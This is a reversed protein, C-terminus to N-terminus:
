VCFVVLQSEMLFCSCSVPFSSHFKISIGDIYPFSIVRRTYDQHDLRREETRRRKLVQFCLRSSAPSHTGSVEGIGLDTLKILLCFSQTNLFYLQTNGRWLHHKHAKIPKTHCLGLLVEIGGHLTRRPHM